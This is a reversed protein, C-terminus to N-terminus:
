KVLLILRYVLGVLLCAFRNYGRYQQYYYAMSRYQMMARKRASFSKETTKGHEHIIRVSPFFYMGKGIAKLRESLINEEAYLFTAEDFMGARFFSESEAILFSGSLKYHLGEQAKQPYSLLFREEKDKRTIFPSSLYMWVYRKWLGLYPEPSQRCGDLGIVEPGIVAAEPHKELCSVLSEALDDSEFRIDNNTFLFYEPQYRERLYKAGYNNGFAYGRNECPLVIVGPLRNSLAAAEEEGAGNDVIVIVHELSIRSLQERVYRVTMDDSHYSVIIIGLKM